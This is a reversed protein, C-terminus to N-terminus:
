RELVLLARNVAWPGESCIHALNDLSKFHLIYFYSERGVVSVAGRIRWTSNILRQLCSVSFKKYDLLYGIACCNWFTGQDGVDELDPKIVSGHRAFPVEEEESPLIDPEM